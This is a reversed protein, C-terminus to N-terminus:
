ASRSRPDLVAGIFAAKGATYAERDDAHTAALGRKRRAYDERLGADALLADRFAVQEAWRPTRTTMLHLHAVRLDDAVLVYFRRWERGDLDPPM